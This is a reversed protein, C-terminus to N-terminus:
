PLRQGKPAPWPLCSMVPIAALVTRRAGSRPTPPLPQACTGCGGDHRPSDHPGCACACRGNQERAASVQFSKRATYQNGEELPFHSCGSYNAGSKDCPRLTDVGSREFSEMSRSDFDNAGRRRCRQILLHVIPAATSTTMTTAIAIREALAGVETSIAVTVVGSGVAVTVRSLAVPRPEAHRLADTDVLAVPRSPLSSPCSPVRTFIPSTM